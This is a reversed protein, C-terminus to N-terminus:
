WSRSSRFGPLRRFVQGRLGRPGNSIQELEAAESSGETCGDLQDARQVLLAHMADAERRVARRRSRTARLPAPPTASGKHRCLEAISQEGHLGDLVIRISRRRPPTASARRGALCFAQCDSSQTVNMACCWITPLLGIHTRGDLCLRKTGVGRRAM